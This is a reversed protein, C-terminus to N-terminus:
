SISTSTSLHLTFSGQPLGNTTTAVVNQSDAVMLCFSIKGLEEDNVEPIVNVTRTTSASLNGSDTVSYSVLYSGVINSNVTSSAVISSTINGDEQDYATAGPDTFVSSVVITLPNAGILTIIPAHNVPPNVIPTVNITRVVETAPLGESDSVNYTVTYTGVTDSDVNNVIIIDSTIDGDEADNATAGTDAYTDGVIIEVPNEGLLIIVPPTNEDEEGPCGEEPAPIIDELDQHHDHAPNARTSITIRVFPNTESHTAHCITIKDNGGHSNGNASVLPAGFSFVISFLLAFGTMKKLRNSKFLTTAPM